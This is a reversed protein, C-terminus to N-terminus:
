PIYWSIGWFPTNIMYRCKYKEKFDGFISSMRKPEKGTKFNIVHKEEFHGAKLHEFVKVHITNGMQNNYHSFHPMQFYMSFIPCKSSFVRSWNSSSFIVSFHVHEIKPCKLSFHLHRWMIFVENVHKKPWKITGRTYCQFLWWCLSKAVTM